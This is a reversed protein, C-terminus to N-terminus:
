QDSSCKQLQHHLHHVASSDGGHLAHGWIVVTENDVIAAFATDSAQIQQVNKLQHQVTSSDGGFDLQM